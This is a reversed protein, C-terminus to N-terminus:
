KKMQKKGFSLSTLACAGAILAQVVMECSDKVEEDEERLHM